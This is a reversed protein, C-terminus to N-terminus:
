KTVMNYKQKLLSGEMRPQEPVLSKGFWEKTESAHCEFDALCCFIFIM